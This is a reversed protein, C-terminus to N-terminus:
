FICSYLQVATGVLLYLQVRTSCAHFKPFKSYFVRGGAGRRRTGHAQGFDMLIVAAFVPLESNCSLTRGPRGLELTMSSGGSPLARPWRRPRATVRSCMRSADLEFSATRVDQCKKQTVCAHNPDSPPRRVTPGDARLDLRAFALPPPQSDHRSRNTFLTIHCQALTWFSLVFEILGIEVPGLEM